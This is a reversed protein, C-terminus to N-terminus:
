AYLNICSYIHIYTYLQVIKHANVYQFNELSIFDFNPPVCLIVISMIYTITKKYALTFFNNIPDLSINPLIFSEIGGVWLIIFIRVFLGTTKNNKKM